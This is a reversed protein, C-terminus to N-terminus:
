KDSVDCVSVDTFEHDTDFVDSVNIYSELVDYADRDAEHWEGVDGMELHKVKEFDEIDMEVEQNFHIVQKAEITVKVKSM